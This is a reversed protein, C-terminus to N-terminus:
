EPVDTEKEKKAQKGTPVPPIGGEGRAIPIM